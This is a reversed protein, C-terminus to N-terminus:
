SSIRNRLLRLVAEKDEESLGQLSLTRRTKAYAVSVGGIEEREVSQAAKGKGSKAATRRLEKRLDQVTKHEVEEAHQQLYAVAEQPSLRSVIELKSIGLYAYSHLDQGIHEYVQIFTHARSRALGMTTLFANWQRFKKQRDRIEKLLRGMEYYNIDILRKFLNFSRRLDEIMVEKADDLFPTEKGYDNHITDRAKLREILDIFREDTVPSLPLGPVEDESLTVLEGSPEGVIEPAALPAPEMVLSPTVDSTTQEPLVPVVVEAAQSLSEEPQTSKATQPTKASDRTAGKPM